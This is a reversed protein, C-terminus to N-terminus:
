RPAQLPQPLRRLLVYDAHRAVEQWGQLVERPLGALVDRQVVLSAPAARALWQGTEEPQRLWRAQGSSYFAASFPRPGLYALPEGRPWQRLLERQSREATYGPFALAGMLVLAPLLLGSLWAWYWVPRQRAVALLLMAALLAFAPLGPLVYPPLVNRSLTFFAASGLTWCLLYSAEGALLGPGAADPEPRRRWLVVAAIGALLTWPMFGALAFWWITGRPEIHPHGYLDGSWGSVLFRQLHEGVIFYHLFGPMRWEALLYWPLTLAATLLGGRIWPLAQWSRRWARAILVWPLLAAGTLVTAVPGKALLGIALGVFFAWRWPGRAAPDQLSRWFAVMCLTTGLVMFMDTMVAGSSVFGLLSGLVVLSAAMPLLPATASRRPWAWFLALTAVTALLPALRAGFENVGFVAMTVASGWFSLPPKGWFPVGYDFWPTVWNGTELIKRAM